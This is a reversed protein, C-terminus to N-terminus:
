STTHANHMYTIHSPSITGLHEPLPTDPLSEPEPFCSSVTPTFELDELRAPVSSNVDKHDAPSIKEGLSVVVFFDLLRTPLETTDPCLDMSPRSSSSSGHSTDVPTSIHTNKQPFVFLKAKYKALIWNVRDANTSYPNIKKWNSSIHREYIANVARNSSSKLMRDIKEQPWDETCTKMSHADRLVDSETFSRSCDKCVWVGFDLVAYASSIDGIQSECEACHRNNVDRVAQLLSHM